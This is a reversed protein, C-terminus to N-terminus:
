DCSWLRQAFVASVLFVAGGEKISAVHCCGQHGPDAPELTMGVGCMEGAGKGAVGQTEATSVRRAGGGRVEMRERGVDRAGEDRAHRDRDRDQDRRDRHDRDQWGGVGLGQDRNERRRLEERPSHERRRLPERDREGQRERERRWSDAHAQFDGPGQEPPQQEGRIIDAFVTSWCICVALKFLL